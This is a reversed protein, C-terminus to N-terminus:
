CAKRKVELSSMIHVPIHRTRPNTKIEDMVQWGDKVPLQIDLLIAAPKYQLAAPAAMDGRVIIVGKYGRQHTFKLLAKAFNTDDEVILIVKDTPKIENRDDSM